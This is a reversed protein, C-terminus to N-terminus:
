HTSRVVAKSQLVETLDVLLLAMMVHSSTWSNKAPLPKKKRCIAPLSMSKFRNAKLTSLAEQHGKEIM